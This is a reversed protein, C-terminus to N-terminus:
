TPCVVSRDLTGREEEGRWDLGRELTQGKNRQNFGQRAVTPRPEGEDSEDQGWKNIQRQQRATKTTRTGAELERVDFDSCCWTGVLSMDVLDSPPCGEVEFSGPRPIVSDGVRLKTHCPLIFPKGDEHEISDARPWPHIVNYKRCAIPFTCTNPCKRPHEWEYFSFTPPKKIVRPMVKPYNIFFVSTHQGLNSSYLLNPVCKVSSMGQVIVKNAYTILWFTVFHGIVKKAGFAFTDKFQIRFVSDAPDFPHNLSDQKSM